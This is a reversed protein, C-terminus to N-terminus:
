NRAAKKFYLTTCISGIENLHKTFSGLGSSFEGIKNLYRCDTFKLIHVSFHAFAVINHNSILPPFSFTLLDEMVVTHKNKM